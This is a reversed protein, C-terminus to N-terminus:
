TSRTYACTYTIRMYIYIYIHICVYMINMEWVFFDVKMGAKAQRRLLVSGRERERYIYIYMMMTTNNNSSNGNNIDNGNNYDNNSDHNDRWGRIQLESPENEWM